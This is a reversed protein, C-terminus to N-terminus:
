VTQGNWFLPHSRTEAEWEVPEISGCGTPDAPLLLEVHKAGRERITTYCGPREECDECGGTLRRFIV